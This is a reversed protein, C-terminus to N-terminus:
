PVKILSANIGVKLVTSSQAIGIITIWDNTALDAEPCIKGATGSQVYIEGQTLVANMTLLGRKQVKVKQGIALASNLALGRVVSAASDSLSADADGKLWTSYSKYVTDGAQMLEGAPLTEHDSGDGLVASDTINVDAM